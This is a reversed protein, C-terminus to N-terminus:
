NADKKISQLDLVDGVSSNSVEDITKTYVNIISLDLTDIDENIVDHHDRYDQLNGHTILRLPYEEDKYKIVTDFAGVKRPVITFTDNDIYLFFLDNDYTYDEIDTGDPDGGFTQGYGFTATMFSPLTPNKTKQTVNTAIDVFGNQTTIDKVIDETPTRIVISCDFIIDNSSNMNHWKTIDHQIQTVLPNLTQERIELWRRSM